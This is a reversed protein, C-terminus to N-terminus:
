VIAAAIEKPNSTLGTRNKVSILTALWYVLRWLVLTGSYTSNQSAFSPLM